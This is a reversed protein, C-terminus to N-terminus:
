NTTTFEGNLEELRAKLKNYDAELAALEAQMKDLKDQANKLKERKPEVIKLSKAYSELARVWACLKSAAESKAKVFEVDFDAQSTYKEMKALMNSSISDKEYDVLRNMFNPDALVKKCEAWTTGEKLCVM